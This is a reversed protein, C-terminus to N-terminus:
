PGGWRSSRSAQKCRRPADTEPPKYQEIVSAPVRGRNSLEIKNSGAWARVAKLDLNSAKHFTM